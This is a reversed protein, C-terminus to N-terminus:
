KKLGLPNAPGSPQVPAIRGAPVPTGAGHLIASGGKPLNVEVLGNGLDRVAAGKCQVGTGLGHVIRCPQGAESTISIWETKGNKREAAIRFGGEARLDRFVADPWAKPMAPFIRIVGRGSQLLMEHISQAASLPTEIVPQGGESYMTSPTVYPKLGQLYRYAGEGDGLMSSILSGGTFSYGQLGGKFSHWHKLSRRILEAEAPDRSDVTQLPYVMLLHSFHRHSSTLQVDRGIRYGKDDQPYPTLNDAVDKWSDKLPDQIHLIDAAELLTQCGWKLLSLDYTADYSDAYEPSHTVPIHWKGDPGKEIFHLYYNVARRLIPYVDERLIAEDMTVRYQLWLNHCAWILDGVECDKEKKGNGPYGTPALGEQGTCRFVAASDKRYQEPVSDIFNQRNRRMGLRLSDAIVMRNGVYAPWYTLQINLNWWTGCWATPQIWPGMTDILMGGARGASALKYMQMWYFSEWYSDPLSVFANRYYSSWWDQHVRDLHAVPQAAAKNVGDVADKTTNGAPYAHRISVLFRTTQDDKQRKWATTVVGDPLLPQEWVTVGDVVSQRGAPNNPYSANGAKPLGKKLWRPSIAQAPKMEFAGEEEGGQPLVEIVMLPLEAHVYARIKLSGADTMVEGRLEAKWLDLRLDCETIRGKTALSFHGIPLRARSFLVDLDLPRKEQVDGRGLDFRLSRENEKYVMMGLMGNGLFPAAVWSGPLAKWVSDNRSMFAPWDVADSVTNSKVGTAPKGSEQAAPSSLSLPLLMLSLLFSRFM